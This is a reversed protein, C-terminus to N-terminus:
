TWPCLMEEQTERQYLIRVNHMDQDFFAFFIKGVQRAAPISM